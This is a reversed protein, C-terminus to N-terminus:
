QLPSGNQEKSPSNGKSTSGYTSAKSIKSMSISKQMLLYFAFLILVGISFYIIKGSLLLKTLYYVTFSITLFDWIITNILSSLRPKFLIPKLPKMDTGIFFDGHKHFSDQMQDKHRFLQHLWEAAEEEGSPIDAISYRKVFMYAEVGRGNLLNHLTAKHSDESRIALNIDYVAPCSEKM